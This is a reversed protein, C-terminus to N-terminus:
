QGTEGHWVVPGQCEGWITKKRTNKEPDTSLHGQHHYWSLTPLPLASSLQYPASLSPSVNQCRVPRDALQLSLDLGGTLIQSTLSRLFSVARLFSDLLKDM